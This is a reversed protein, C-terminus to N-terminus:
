FSKEFHVESQHLEVKNKILFLKFQIDIDNPGSNFDQPQVKNIYNEIGKHARTGYDQAEKLKDEHFRTLFDITPDRIVSLVETVSISDFDRVESRKGTRYSNYTIFDLLQYNHKVVFHDLTPYDYLITDSALSNIKNQM